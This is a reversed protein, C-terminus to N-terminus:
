TNTQGLLTTLPTSEISDRAGILRLPDRLGRMRAVTARIEASRRRFFIKRLLNEVPKASFMSLNEVARVIVGEKEM